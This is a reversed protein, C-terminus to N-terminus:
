KNMSEYVFNLTGRVDDWFFCELGKEWPQEQIYRRMREVLPKRYLEKIPTFARGPNDIFTSVLQKARNILEAEEVVEDVINMQVAEDVNMMKGFYVLDRYKKDDCMGFRVIEGQAVALPLGIKIESMGFKAKPNNVAIRYDCAMALIMGNAVTHGNLAAIVPKKCAFLDVLTPEELNLFFDAVEKTDKFDLFMKLNFGSSFFRGEGTLILGKPSPNENLEKIIGKMEHYFEDTISNDKGHKLTVILIDDEIRKEIM